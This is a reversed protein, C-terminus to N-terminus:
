RREVMVQKMQRSKQKVEPTLNMQDLHLDPNCVIDKFANDITDLIDQLLRLNRTEKTHPGVDTWHYPPSVIFGEILKGLVCLQQLIDPIYRHVIGYKDGEVSHVVMNALSLIACLIVTPDPVIQNIRRDITCRFPYGLPTRLVTVVLESYRQLFGHLMTWAQEMYGVVVKSQHGSDDQLNDVLRSSTEKGSSNAFIDARKLSLVGSNTVQVKNQVPKEEVKPKAPPQLEAVVDNLASLCEKQIRDWASPVSTPGRQELEEYISTRRQPDNISIYFLEQFAVVRTTPKARSQLGTILTENKAPAKDSIPVGRHLPGLTLYVTFVANCLEWLWILVLSSFFSHVMMKFTAPWAYYANSKHLKFFMRSFFLSWDWVPRRFVVYVLPFSLTAIVAYTLSVAVVDPFKETVRRRAPLNAPAGTFNLYDYDLLVHVLSYLVAVYIAFGNVYVYQENLLPPEFPRPKITFPLDIQRKYLLFFLFSSALYSALTTLFFPKLVTRTMVETFFNPYSLAKAHHHAKRLTLVIFCAVILPFARLPLLWWIWGIPAFLGM